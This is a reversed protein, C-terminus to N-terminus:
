IYSIQTIKTIQSHSWLKLFPFLSGKTGGSFFLTGRKELENGM